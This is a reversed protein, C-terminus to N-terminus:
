PVAIGDTGLEGSCVAIRGLVEPELAAFTTRADLSAELTQCLQSPTFFGRDFWRVIRRAAKSVDESGFPYNWLEVESSVRTLFYLLCGRGDLTRFVGSVLRRKRAMELTFRIAVLPSDSLLLQLDLLPDAEPMGLEGDAIDDNTLNDLPM